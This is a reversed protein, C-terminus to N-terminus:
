SHKNTSDTQKQFHQAYISAGAARIFVIISGVVLVYRIFLSFAGIGNSSDDSPNEQKAVDPQSVVTNTTQTAKTTAAISAKHEFQNAANKAILTVCPLIGITAIIVCLLQLYRTNATPQHAMVQMLKVISQAYLVSAAFLWEEHYPLVGLHGNSAFAYFLAFLPALTILVEICIESAVHRFPITNM